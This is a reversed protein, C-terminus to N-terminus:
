LEEDQVTENEDDIDRGKENIPLYYDMMGQRDPDTIPTPPPGPWGSSVNEPRLKALPSYQYVAPDYNGTSWKGVQSYVKWVDESGRTSKFLFPSRSHLQLVSDSM